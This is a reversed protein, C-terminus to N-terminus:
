KARKWRKKSLQVPVWCTGFPSETKIDGDPEMCMGTDRRGHPRSTGLDYQILDANTTAGQPTEEICCIDHDWDLSRYM